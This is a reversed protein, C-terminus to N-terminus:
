MTYFGDGPLVHFRLAGGCILLGTLVPQYTYVFDDDYIMIRM